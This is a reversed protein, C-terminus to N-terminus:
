SKIYILSSLALLKISKTSIILWNLDMLIQMCPVMYPYMFSVYSTPLPVYPCTSLVYPCMPPVYTTYLAQLPHTPPMYPAYPHMAACPPVYLCTPAYPCSPIHLPCM